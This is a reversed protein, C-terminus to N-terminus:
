SWVVRGAFANPAANCVHARAPRRSGSAPSSVSTKSRESETWAGWHTEANLTTEPTPSTAPVTLWSLRWRTVRTILYFVTALVITLQAFLLHVLVVAVVCVALVEDRRPLGRPVLYRARRPMQEAETVVEAPTEAGLTGPTVRAQGPLCARRAALHLSSTETPAEAANNAIMLM